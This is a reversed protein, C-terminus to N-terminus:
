KFNVSFLFNVKTILFLFIVVVVVDHKMFRKELKELWYLKYLSMIKWSKWGFNYFLCKKWSKWSKWSNWGYHCGQTMLFYNDDEDTM